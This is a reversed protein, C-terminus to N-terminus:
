VRLFRVVDGDVLVVRGDDLPVTRVDAVEASPPVPVLRDHLSRHRVTLVSVWLREGSYGDGVVTLLTRTGALWTVQHPEQGALAISGAPYRVTGRSRPHALDGIDLLTAKAREVPFVPRRPRPQPAPGASASGGDPPIPVASASPLLPQPTPVPTVAGRPMPVPPEDVPTQQPATQGLGLVLHHGVPHLYSSWGPLHLAGLVSPRTPDGLDLVYFPDVQRFTVMVAVDGLWRMSRIQQDPGLGDVRGVEVLRGSEPRLLVVANAASGYASGVAVRLVGDQEDMSWSGAVQGDVAGSGAYAASTGSLDFAYLHTRADTPQPANELGLCCRPAQPTTAVVLRDPAMYALDSATAVATTDTTQPTGSRFGVVSLTGIGGDAEPVAVDSCAVTPRPADAGVTVAPLWDSVTSARVADRNARLAEAESRSSDPTVFPLSPLSAALVLRVVDGTQRATVLRGAYERSDVATPRAPDSVDFTRVWTTEPAVGNWAGENPAPTGAGLAVVRDGALLLVPSSMGTLPASGLERPRSGSVDYTTLTDDVVRVLLSGSAKVVDPEDVGTEQVNTGTASTTSPPQPAQASSGPAAVAGEAPLAVDGYVTPGQWGWATVQKLARDVYWTRLADCSLGSGLDATALRLPTARGQASRGAVLFGSVFATAVLLVVTLTAVSRRLPAPIMTM